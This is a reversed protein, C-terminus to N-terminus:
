RPGPRPTQRSRIQGDITSEQWQSRLLDPLQDVPAGAPARQPDPVVQRHVLGVYEHMQEELGAIFQEVTSRSVPLIRRIFASRGHAAVSSGGRPVVTRNGRSGPFFAEVDAPAPFVTRRQWEGVVPSVSGAQNLGSFTNGLLTTATARDLYLGVGPNAGDSTVSLINNVMRVQTTRDGNFVHAVNLNGTESSPEPLLLRLISHMVTIEGGIATIAVAEETLEPVLLEIVSNQIMTDADRITIGYGFVGSVATLVSDHVEFTGRIIRIVPIRQEEEQIVLSRTIKVRGDRATILSEGTSGGTAHVLSDSINLAGHELVQISRDVVSGQLDVTGARITLPATIHAGYLVLEEASSEVPARIVLQELRLPHDVNWITEDATRIHVGRGDGRLTLNPVEAAITRLLATDVTYVAPALVVTNRRTAELQQLAEAISGFPRERTGDGSAGPRVFLSAKDISVVGSLIERSRTGITSIGYAEITFRQRTGPSTALSIDEGRYRQFLVTAPAAAQDEPVVRYWIEGSVESGRPRLAFRFTRDEYYTAGEQLELFEPTGPVRGDLTFRVRKEPSLEGGLFVSRYRIEVTRVDGPTPSFELPNQYLQSGAHVPAAGSGDIGVSFRVPLGGADLVIARSSAYVDGDQVGFVQPTNDPRGAVLPKISTDSTVGSPSRRFWVLFVQDEDAPMQWDMIARSVQSFEVEPEQPSAVVAAFLQDVDHGSWIISGSRGDPNYRVAPAREVTPRETSVTVRVQRTPGAGLNDDMRYAEILYDTRHHELVVPETYRQFPPAGAQDTTYVRWFLTGGSPQIPALDVVTERSLHWRDGAVPRGDFRIIPLDDPVQGLLIERSERLETRLGAPSESYAELTWRFMGAEPPTLVVPATWERFAQSDSLRYFIRTGEQPPEFSLLVSRSTQVSEVPSRILPPPPPVRDVAITFRQVPTWENERDVFRGRVAIHYMGQEGEPLPYRIEGRTQPSRLTPIRPASGKQIEYHLQMDAHIMLYAVVLEAEGTIANGEPGQGPSRVVPPLELVRNDVVLEVHASLSRRGDVQRFAEVQFRRIAGDWGDFERPRTYREPSGGDVRIFLDGEGTVTVTRGEVAIEPAAGPATDIAVIDTSGGRRVPPESAVSVHRQFGPPLLQHIAVGSARAGPAPITGRFFPAGSSDQLVVDMAASSELTLLMGRQEIRLQEAVVPPCLDRPPVFEGPVSWNGGPFRAWSRIFGPVPSDPECVIARRYLQADAPPTRESGVRSSYTQYLIETDPPALISIGAERDATFLPPDPQRGRLLVPYREEEGPFRSSFFRVVELSDLGPVPRLTVPEQMPPDDSRVSRDRTTYSTGQPPLTIEGAVELIDTLPEPHARQQWTREIAPLREGQRTEAQVFITFEGSGPLLIPERYVFDLVGELPSAVTVAVRGLGTTDIIVPQENAFRGMQPSLLLQDVEVPPVDRSRDILYLFQRPEGAIGLANIPVVTLSYVNREGPPVTLTLGQEPFQHLAGTDGELTYLLAVDDGITGATNQSGDVTIRISEQYVGPPPKLASVQPVRRDLDYTLRHTRGAARVELHYIMQGNDTVPLHLERGLPIFYDTDPQGDASVFRYEVEVGPLPIIRQASSFFGGAPRVPVDPHVFGPLVVLFLLLILSQVAKPCSDSYGGCRKMKMTEILKM